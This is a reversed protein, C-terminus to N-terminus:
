LSVIDRKRLMTYLLCAITVNICSALLLPLLLALFFGMGFLPIMSAASIVGNGIIAVFAALVIHVRKALFWLLVAWVAMQMSIFLHIPVGLPFGSTSAALLHGISAVIAGEVPGFALAALYGPASDFAITGAPSPIIILAGIASLAILM